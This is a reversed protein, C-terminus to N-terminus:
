VPEKRFAHSLTEVMHDIDTLDVNLTISIRLRATGYPVTPPRIARIDFGQSQMYAALRVARENDGVIVPIIQTGSTPLGLAAIKQNAHRIRSFLRARREPQDRQIRLAERLAAAQLPSPATTFIFSSARNILYDCLTANAGLLAGSGGLAKGCAQLTIINEAKSFTSALGAGNSGYVGTAHAEDIYLMGDYREAIALLESLPAQDGDMSYLSEVIIWPTGRGGSTRWQRIRDEFSQADNHRAALAEARGARIGAHASAHSLDDHVILDGPQPLTSLAALNAMYGSGFYIMRPSSFHKAAEAELTEHEPHNGRLLRSGTAGLPVGRQLAAEAAAKIRPHAALGLYDNSSFDLGEALALKRRRGKRELNALRASYIDLNM